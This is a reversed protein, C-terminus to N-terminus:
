PKAGFKADELTAAEQAEVKERRGEDYVKVGQYVFYGVSDAGEVNHRNFHLFVRRPVDISPLENTGHAM